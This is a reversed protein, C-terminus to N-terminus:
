KTFTATNLDLTIVDGTDPNVFYVPACPRSTRTPMTNNPKGM